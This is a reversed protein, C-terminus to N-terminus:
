GNFSILTFQVSEDPADTHTDTQTHKRASQENKTQKNKHRQAFVYLSHIFTYIYYIRATSDCRAFGRAICIIRHQYVYCM